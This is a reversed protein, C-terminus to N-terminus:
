LQIEKIMEVADSGDRYYSKRIRRQKFGYKKYLLYATINNASVELSVMGINLSKAFECVYDLLKTGIGYNRYNKDVVINEVNIEDTIEVLVFGVIECGIEAVFLKHNPGILSNEFEKETMKNPLDTSTELKNVAILDLVEAERIGLDARKIKESEAQSLQYYVPVLAQDKSKNLCDVLIEGSLEVEFSLFNDDKKFMGVPKGNAVSILESLSLNREYKYLQNGVVTAVFYSNKSGLIAVTDCDSNQNLALAYLYDLNNIGFAPLNLADRFAKITAVGVRIGTFSGPGVVVGFRDMTSIDLKNQKLISDIEPLMTENHHAKSTLIKHFIKDQQQLVIELNENATNIILSNM